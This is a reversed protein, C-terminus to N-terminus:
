AYPSRRLSQLETTHEESRHPEEAVDQRQGLPEEIERREVVHRAEGRLVYGHQGEDQQRDQRRREDTEAQRAQAPAVELGSCGPDSPAPASSCTLRQQDTPGSRPSGQRSRQATTSSASPSASPSPPPCGTLAPPRAWCRSAM